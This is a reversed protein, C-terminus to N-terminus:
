VLQGFIYEHSFASVSSDDDPGAPKEGLVGLAKNWAVLGEFVQNNARYDLYEPYSFLRNQGGDRMRGSIKVIRDPEKLPLPKLVFADFVTFLATNIGIGLALTLLAIFAFSPNKVLMRAGFRLDQWFEELWRVGRTDRSREKAQEVGGFAKRAAYRAEESNMGLRINQEIQREIHDRLEEDMEREMESKRLLARLWIRLKGLM